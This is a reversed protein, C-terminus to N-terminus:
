DRVCLYSLPVADVVVFTGPQSLNFEQGPKINPDHM